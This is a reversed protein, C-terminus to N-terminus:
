VYMGLNFIPLLIFGRVVVYCLMPLYKTILDSTPFMNISGTLLGSLFIFFSFLLRDRDGLAPSRLVPCDRMRAARSLVRIFNTIARTHSPALRCSRRSEDVTYFSNFINFSSSGIDLGM